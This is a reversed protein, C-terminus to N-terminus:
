AAVAPLATGPVSKVGTLPVTVKWDQAVDGDGRGASSGHRTCVNLTGTRSSWTTSPGFVMLRESECARVDVPERAMRPKGDVATSTMASSSVFPVGCGGVNWIAVADSTTPSPAPLSVAQTM